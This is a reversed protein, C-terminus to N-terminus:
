YCFESWNLKSLLNQEVYFM